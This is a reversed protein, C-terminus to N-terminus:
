VELEHRLSALRETLARIQQTRNVLNVVLASSGIPPNTQPKEPSTQPCKSLVPDLRDHLMNIKAELDEVAAGLEKVALGLPQEKPSCATGLVQDKYQPRVSVEARM